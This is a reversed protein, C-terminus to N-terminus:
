VVCLSLLLLFFLHDFYNSMLFYRRRVRVTWDYEGPPALTSGYLTHKKWGVRTWLRFPMDIQESTLACSMASHRRARGSM